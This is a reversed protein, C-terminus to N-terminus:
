LILKKGNKFIIFDQEKADNLIAETKGSEFARIFSSGNVLKFYFGVSFSIAIRNSIKGTTGIVIPVHQAIAEAQAESYCSNLIVLELAFNEEKEFYSFLKELKTASIVDYGRKTEDQVIIGSSDVGLKALEEDKKKGHGSFHLISPKFLETEEKLETRNIAKKVKLIYKNNQRQLKESIKSHEDSISLRTTEAPNATLMLIKLPPQQPILKSTHLEPLGELKKLSELLSLRIQDKTYRYSDLNIIGHNKLEQIKTHKCM